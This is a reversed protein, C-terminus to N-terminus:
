LELCSFGKWSYYLCGEFYLDNKVAEVWVIDGVKLDPLIGTVIVEFPCYLRALKGQRDIILISDTGVLKFLERIYKENKDM